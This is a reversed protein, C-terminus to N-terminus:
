QLSRKLSHWINGVLLMVIIIADSVLVAYELCVLVRFTFKSEILHEATSTLMSEFVAALTFLMLAVSYVLVHKAVDKVPVWWPHQM